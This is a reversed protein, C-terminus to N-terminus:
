KRITVFLHFLIYAQMHESIGTVCAAMYPSGDWKSSIDDMAGRRKFVPEQKM